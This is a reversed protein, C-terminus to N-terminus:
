PKLRRQRSHKLTMDVIKEQLGNQKVGTVSLLIEQEEGESVTVEDGESEDSEDSVSDASRQLLGIATVDEEEESSEWGREEQMKRVKREREREKIMERISQKRKSPRAMIRYYSPPVTATTSATSSTPPHSRFLM